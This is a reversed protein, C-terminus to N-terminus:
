LRVWKKKHKNTLLIEHIEEIQKQLATLLKFCLTLKVQVWMETHLDTQLVAKM